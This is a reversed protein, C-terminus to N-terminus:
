VMFGSIWLLLCFLIGVISNILFVKLNGKQEKEGKERVTLFILVGLAVIGLVTTVALVTPNDLFNPFFYEATVVYFNNLFHAIMVPFTSKSKLAIVSFFFGMLFQYPTQAPNMHYLSFLLGGILANVYINGSKIGGLIVGRFAIEEAVAPLVCLTIIVLLYNGVSFKPLIIVSPLYGFSETLFDIFLGNLGGLGFIASVCLIVGYLYYKKETKQLLCSELIPTKTYLCVLVTTLILAIPSLSFSLFKYWDSEKAVISTISAGVGTSVAILVIVIVSFYVGSLFEKTKSQEIGNM